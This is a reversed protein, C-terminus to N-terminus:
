CNIVATLTACRTRVLAHHDHFGDRRAFRLRRSSSRSRGRVALAHEHDPPLACRSSRCTGAGASSHL